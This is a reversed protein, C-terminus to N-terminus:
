LTEYSYFAKFIHNLNQIGDFSFDLNFYMLVIVKVENVIKRKRENIQVKVLKLPVRLRKLMCFFADNEPKLAFNIMTFKNYVKVVYSQVKLSTHLRQYALHLSLYLLNM